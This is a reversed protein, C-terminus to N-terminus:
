KADRDEWKGLSILHTKDEYFNVIWKSAEESFYVNPKADKSTQQKTERVFDNYRLKSMEDIKKIADERDEIKRVIPALYQLRVVGLKSMEDANLQLHEIFVEYIRIYMYAKERSFSLEESALFQSFDEYDLKQYLKRDRIVKLIKGMAIFTVDQLKRATLLKRWLDFSLDEDSLNEDVRFTEALDINPKYKQLFDTM